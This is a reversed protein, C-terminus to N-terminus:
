KCPKTPDQEEGTCQKEGKGQMRQMEHEMKQHRLDQLRQMQEPTLVMALKGQIEKQIKERRERTAASKDDKPLACTAKASRELIAKVKTWQEDSLGLQSRYDLKKAEPQNIGLKPDTEAHSPVAMSLACAFALGTLQYKIHTKM